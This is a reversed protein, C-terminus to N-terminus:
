RDETIGDIAAGRDIERQIIVRATRESEDMAATLERMAKPLGTVPAAVARLCAVAQSFTM